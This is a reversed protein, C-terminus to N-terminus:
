FARGKGKLSDEDKGGEDKEKASRDEEFVRVARTNLLSLGPSAACHNALDM